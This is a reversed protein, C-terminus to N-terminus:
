HYLCITLGIGLVVYTIVLLHCQSGLLINKFSKLDNRITTRKSIQVQVYKCGLNSFEIFGLLGPNEPNKPRAATIPFRSDGKTLTLQMSIAITM